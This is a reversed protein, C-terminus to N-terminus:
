PADSTTPREQMFSTIILEVRRNQARHTETDNPAVPNDSGLGDTTILAKLHPSRDGLYGAVAEARSLSLTKNHEATGTSDTYGDITIQSVQWGDIKLLLSDLYGMCESTLSHDNVGFLLGSLTLTDSRIVPAQPPPSGAKVEDLYIHETHRRHEAYLQERNEKYLSCTNGASDMAQLSIEDLAFILDTSNEKKNPEPPPPSYHELNGLLIFNMEEAVTIQRSLRIWGNPDTEKIDGNDLRLTPRPAILIRSPDKATLLIDLHSFVTKGTFLWLSLTYTHGPKLPCLTMSYPYTKRLPSYPNDFCFALDRQGNKPPICGLPSVTFWAAPSCLALHEACTNLDEFGGNALLDQGSAQSFTLLLLLIPWPSSLHKM